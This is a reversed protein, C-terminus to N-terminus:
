SIKKLIEKYGEILLAILPTYNVYKKGDTENVLEPMLKELEQAIVGYSKTGTNKWDFEYTNISSLLNIAGAIPKINEKHTIDSLSNFETANLAGTSPNFFLKTSSVFLNDVNGSSSDVFTLFRSSNTAIDDSVNLDAGDGQSGTFGIDGQSGTFGVDGQSGTFGVDGQSGTFGVDGQSGTFGVDGQSGTFGVDGQSGTFGVDGQSGTFGTGGEEGSSGTFGVDGQSGTFGVDGQSGTFGIDGQSGTFGVDGQSGTFGILGQIGRSGTFGVDGQSGTFGVDGQSGTFGIDGQSGTFGIEGQPGQINGVNIWDDSAWVWLNGEILYADGTNGSEPLEEPDNLSGIINLGEGVDGQSGTFGVDGQSGTFGRPGSPGISAAVWQSGFDDIFYLYLNGDTTDWWLDGKSPDEPATDSVTTIIQQANEFRSTSSNYRLIDKEALDTLEVLDDNNLLSSPFIRVFVSGTQPHVKLVQAVISKNGPAVPKSNTLRENDTLYLYDGFEWIESVTSSDEGVTSSDDGPVIGIDSLLGTYGTTNVNELEGQNVVFGSNNPLIEGTTFGIVSQIPEVGTWPSVAIKTTDDDVVGAVVVMSGRPISFETNNKVLYVFQQGLQLNTDENLVLELTQTINNWRLEAISSTSDENAFTIENTLISNFEVDDTPKVAQGISLPEISNGLGLITEDTSIEKFEIANDMDSLTNFLDTADSTFFNSTDIDVTNVDVVILNNEDVELGRDFTLWKRTGDLESSLVSNEAPPLGLDPETESLKIFQYRDESVENPAIKKVRETLFKTM